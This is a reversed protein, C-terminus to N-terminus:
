MVAKVLDHLLVLGAFFVNCYDLSRVGCHDVVNIGAVQLVVKGLLALVKVTNHEIERVRALLANVEVLFQHPSEEGSSRIDQM